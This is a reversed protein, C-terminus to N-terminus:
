LKKMKNFNKCKPCKIEIETGEMLNGRFLGRDCIPCRYVPGYISFTEEKFRPDFIMKRCKSALMSITKQISGQIEM